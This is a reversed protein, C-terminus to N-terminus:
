LCQEIGTLISNTSKDFANKDRLFVDLDIGYDSKQNDLVPFFRSNEFMYYYILKEAILKDKQLNDYGKPNTLFDVYSEKSEFQIGYGPVNFRGNASFVVPVNLFTSELGLIGDYILTYDTYNNFLTYSNFTISSSIIVINEFLHIDKLYSKLISEFTKTGNFWTTEAPHFRIVLSNTKDKKFYEILFILWDSITDFLNNREHVNGDWVINPFATFVKGPLLKRDKLVFDEDIFRQSFYVKTDKEKFETRSTIYKSVKSRKSSTLELRLFKNLSDENNTVQHISNFFSLSNIQYFNPGYVIKRKSHQIEEFAPGWTSYIGHSTLYLLNVGSNIKSEVYSGIKSSILTNKITIKEYWISISSKKIRDNQFFRIMSEKVYKNISSKNLQSPTDNTIESVRKFNLNASIRGVFLNWLIFELKRRLKNFRLIVAYYYKSNYDKYLITDTHEFKGDDLIFEVSYGSKIFILALNLEMLFTSPLFRTSNIIIQSNPTIKINKTLEKVLKRVKIPRRFYSIFKLIMNFQEADGM